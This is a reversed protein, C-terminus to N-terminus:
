VCRHIHVQAKRTRTNVIAGNPGMFRQLKLEHLHQASRQLQLAPSNGKKALIVVTASHQAFVVQQPLM